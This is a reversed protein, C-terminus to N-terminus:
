WTVPAKWGWNAIWIPWHKALKSPTQTLRLSTVLKPPRWIASFYLVVVYFSIIWACRPAIMAWVDCVCGFSLYIIIASKVRCVSDTNPINKIIISLAFKYLLSTTNSEFESSMWTSRFVLDHIWRICHWHQSMISWHQRSAVTYHTGRIQVKRKWQFSPWVDVM